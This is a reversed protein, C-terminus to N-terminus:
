GNLSRPDSLWARLHAALLLLVAAGALSKWLGQLDLLRSVVAAPDSPSATTRAVKEKRIQAPYPLVPKYTGLTTPEGFAGASVAPLDPAAGALTTPLYACLDASAHRGSAAGGSGSSGGTGHGGPAGGPAGTGTKTGGSGTPSPSPSAAAPFSVSTTAPQASAIGGSSGPSTHRLAYIDFGQTTGRAPSGFDISVSCSGGNCVAAPDLNGPTVDASADRIDYGLLDPEVNATWTFTAVTGAVSAAFGAVTAPPVLLTVAATKTPGAGGDSFTFTYTGNIAETSADTCSSANWPPCATDVKASINGASNSAVKSKTALTHSTGTPDAVSLELTRSGSLGTFDPASDTGTAQLSTNASLTAGAVSSSGDTVSLSTSSAALAPASGMVILAAVMGGPIALRAVIRGTTRRRRPGAALDSSTM